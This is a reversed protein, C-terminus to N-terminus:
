ERLAVVAKTSQEDKMIRAPELDALSFASPPNEHVM